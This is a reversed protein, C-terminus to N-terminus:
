VMTGSFLFLCFFILFRNERFVASFDASFRGPDSGPRVGKKVKTLCNQEIILTTVFLHASLDLNKKFFSIKVIDGM